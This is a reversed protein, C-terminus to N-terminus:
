CMTGLEYGLQNVRVFARETGGASVAFAFLGCLVTIAQWIGATRGRRGKEASSVREM